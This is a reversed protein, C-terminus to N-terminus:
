GDDCEYFGHYEGRVCIAGALGCRAELGIRWMWRREFNRGRNGRFCRNETEIDVGEAVWPRTAPPSTVTRHFAICDVTSKLSSPKRGSANCLSFVLAALPRTYPRFNLTAGSAFVLPEGYGGNGSRAMGPYHSNSSASNEIRECNLLKPVVHRARNTRCRSRTRPASFLRSCRRLAGSKNANHSLLHLAVAPLARLSSAQSSVDNLGVV